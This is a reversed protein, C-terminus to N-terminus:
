SLSLNHKEVLFHIFGDCSRDLTQFCEEFGDIDGFWPDIVASGKDVSDFYRMMFLEYDTNKPAIDLANSRNSEDMVIVYDFQNFHHKKLQQARHNLPVNHKK